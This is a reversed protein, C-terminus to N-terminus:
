LNIGLAEAVISIDKDGRGSLNVLLVSDPPFNKAEKLALSLAHCSEMAGLIGETEALLGFAAISDEDTVGM